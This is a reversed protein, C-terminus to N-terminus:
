QDANPEDVPQVPDPKETSRKEEFEDKASCHFNDINPISSGFFCTAGEPRDVPPENQDDDEIM